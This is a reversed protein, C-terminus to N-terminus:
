YYGNYVCSSHFDKFYFINKHVLNKIENLKILSVLVWATDAQNIGNIDTHNNKMKKCYRSCSM